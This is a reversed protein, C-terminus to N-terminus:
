FRETELFVHVARLGNKSKTREMQVPEINFGYVAAIAEDGYMKELADASQRARDIDRDGIVGSAEVAVYVTEGEATAARVIMDTDTLREYEQDSILGNDVAQEKQSDFEEARSPPQVYHEALWMTKPRTLGLTIALRQRLRTPMKSELASGRLDNVSNTLWQLSQDVSDFRQDVGAFREDVGDFRRDVEAFRRDVGDFREDVGDFRRDVSDFRQDVGAFREDVGDFREDVEAFRRNTEARFKKFEGPLELLEETLLERRAAERFEENSRLARIFDDTTEIIIAM